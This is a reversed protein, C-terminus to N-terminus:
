TAFVDVFGHMPAWNPSSLTWSIKASSKFYCQPWFELLSNSSLTTLYLISFSVIIISLSGADGRRWCRFSEYYKNHDLYCVNLIDLNRSKKRTATHSWSERSLLGIINWYNWAHSGYYHIDHTPKLSRLVYSCITKITCINVKHYHLHRPFCLIM